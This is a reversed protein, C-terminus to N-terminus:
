FSVTKNLQTWNVANMDSVNFIAGDFACSYSVEGSRNLM